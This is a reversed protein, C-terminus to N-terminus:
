ASPSAVPSPVAVSQPPAVPLTLRFRAGRSPQPESLELTGGCARALERATALGLGSGGADKRTSFFEDFIRERLHPPVGPGTDTIEMEVMEDDPRVDVRVIGSAGASEVAQRANQILNVLIRTLALRDAWVVAGPPCDVQLELATAPFAALVAVTRLLEDLHVAGPQLEGFRRATRAEGQLRVLHETTRALADAEHALQSRVSEPLADGHQELVRRLGRTTLTLRTTANAVDHLVRERARAQELRLDRETLEDRLEAVTRNLHIRNVADWLARRVAAPDWPKELYAHVGGRNIADLATQHDSYATLLMRRVAPARESVMHCLEIGSVHPMRQDAVLVAVPERALVRLAEDASQATLVSFENGFVARFVLLNDPEDDVYLVPYQGAPALREVGEDRDAEGM